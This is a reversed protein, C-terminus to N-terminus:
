LEYKQTDASLIRILRMSQSSRLVGSNRYIITFIVTKIMSGSVIRIDISILSIGKHMINLSNRNKM